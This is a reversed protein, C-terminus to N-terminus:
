DVEASIDSIVKTNGLLLAPPNRKFSNFFFEWLVKKAGLIQLM